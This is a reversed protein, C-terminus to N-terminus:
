RIKEIVRLKASRARKNNELEKSSPTLVKIVKDPYQKQMSIIFDIPPKQATIYLIDVFNKKFIERWYLSLKKRLLRYQIRFEKQIDVSDAMDSQKSVDINEIQSVDDGM